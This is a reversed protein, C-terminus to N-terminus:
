AQHSRAKELMGKLREILESTPLGEFPNPAVQMEIKMAPSHGCRDLVLQAARIVTPDRDSDSRGCHACPDGTRLARLLADLAPEVLALLRERAAAQTLPAAGGHFYCVLAGPAPVRNCRQGTTKSTATCRRDPLLVQRAHSQGILQDM